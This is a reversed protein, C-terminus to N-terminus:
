VPAGAPRQARNQRSPPADQPLPTAASANARNYGNKVTLKMYCSKGLISEGNIKLDDVKGNIGDTLEKFIYYEGRRIKIIPEGDEDFKAEDREYTGFKNEDSHEYFDKENSARMYDDYVLDQKAAPNVVWELEDDALERDLLADLRNRLKTRKDGVRLNIFSDHFEQDGVQWILQVGQYRIGEGNNYNDTQYEKYIDLNIGKLTAKWNGQPIAEFSSEQKTSTPLAM